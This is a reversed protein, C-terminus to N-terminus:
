WCFWRGRCCVKYLAHQPPATPGEGLVRSYYQNSANTTTSTTTNPTITTTSISTNASIQTTNTSTTSTTGLPM